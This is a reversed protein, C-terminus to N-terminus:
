PPPPRSAMRAVADLLIRGDAASLGVLASPHGGQRSWCLLAVAAATGYGLICGLGAGFIGLRPVLIADSGLMVVIGVVMSQIRVLAEGRGALDAVLLKWVCLAAGAFALPWIAVAAPRFDTGFIVPVLWPGLAAAALGGALVVLTAARVMLATESFSRHRAVHTLLVASLADPLVALLEVSASAVAYLGAERASGIAAVLVVDLRYIGLTLASGVGAPVGFRLVARLDLPSPPTTGRRRSRRTLVLSVAAALLRAMAAVAIVLAVSRRGAALLAASLLLSVAGYTAQGSAHARPDRLGLAVGAALALWATGLTAAALALGRTRDSGDLVVGMVMSATVCLGLATGTQARAARRARGPWGDRGLEASIWLDFGATVLVSSAAVGVLAVSVIGKGAPGLLRSTLVGGIGVGATALVTGAVSAGARGALRGESAPGPAEGAGSVLRPDRRDRRLSPRGGHGREGFLYWAPSRLSTATRVNGERPGRGM